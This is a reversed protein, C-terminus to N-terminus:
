IGELLIGHTAENIGDEVGERKWFENKGRREREAIAMAVVTGGTGDLDPLAQM